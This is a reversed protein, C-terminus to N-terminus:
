NRRRLIMGTDTAAFWASPTSALTVARAVARYDVTEEHLDSLDKGTFLRVRGPVPTEALKGPVHVAALAVGAAPSKDLDAIRAHDLHFLETSKWASWDRAVVDSVLDTPFAPGFVLWGHDAAPFSVALLTQHLGVVDWTWTRGGDVTIGAFVGGDAMSVPSPHWQEPDVWAPTADGGSTKEGLVTGHWADSFNVYEFTIQNELGPIREADRVDEWHEGGDSTRRFTRRMGVLWGHQSDIFFARIYGKGSKIKKWTLGADTTHLLSKTTIMWGETQNLFFLSVPPDPPSQRIWHEGGDRTIVALPRDAGHIEDIMGAAICFKPAPCALDVINFTSDADDYFYSQQWDPAAASLSVLPV